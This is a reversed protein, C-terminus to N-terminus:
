DLLDGPKLEDNKRMKGSIEGWHSGVPPRRAFDSGTVTAHGSRCQVPNGIFCNLSQM